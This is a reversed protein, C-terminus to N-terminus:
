AKKKKGTLVPLTQEWLSSNGSISLNLLRFFSKGASSGQRGHWLVAWHRCPSKDEGWSFHIEFVMDLGLDPHSACSHGKMYPLSQPSAALFLLHQLFARSLLPSLSQRLQSINALILILILLLEPPHPLCHSHWCGQALVPQKGSGEAGAADVRGRSVRGSVLCSSGQGKSAGSVSQHDRGQVSKVARLYCVGKLDQESKKEGLSTIEQLKPLSLNSSAWPPVRGM